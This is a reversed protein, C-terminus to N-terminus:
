LHGHIKLSWKLELNLSRGPSTKGWVYLVKLLLYLNINNSLSNDLCWSNKIELILNLFFIKCVFHIYSYLSNNENSNPQKWSFYSLCKENKM